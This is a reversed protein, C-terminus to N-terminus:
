YLLSRYYEHLSRDKVPHFWNNPLGKFNEEKWFHLYKVTRYKITSLEEATTYNLGAEHALTNFMFEIFMLEKYALAHLNIIYLLNRSIGMACVMSKHWGRDPNEKSSISITKSQHNMYKPIKNWHWFDSKEELNPEDSRTVLDFSSYKETMEIVSKVSPIFVDDEVIWSFDIDKLKRCLFYLVKDWSTIKKKISETIVYNTNKFGANYCVEDDMQLVFKKYQEEPKYNNNDVVVYAHIGTKSVAECFDLVDYKPEYTLLFFGVKM